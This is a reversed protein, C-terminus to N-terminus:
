WISRGASLEALCGRARESDTACANKGTREKRIEVPALRMGGTVGADRRRKERPAAVAKSWM